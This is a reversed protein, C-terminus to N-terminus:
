KAAPQEAAQIGRVYAILDAVDKPELGKELGEPMLSLGTSAISEIRNRPVVDSVGEARKLTVANASEEAILGTLVRGDTTEVNYNIFNAAVERNPDLVHILMDEPTRGTVTALNPGVDIGQNEARHCTACVKKFVARGKERDGTLTLSPRYTAIIANRDARGASGLSKEARSRISANPNTLLQKQRAPDLDLPAVAKSEIADLLASVREPRAFLAEVAERRVSPSLNKWHGLIAPGVRRDALDALTQIAALQVATPERADLRDPIVALAREVPGLSLLRIADVRSSAAGDGKATAEAREFVPALAAGIPGNLANRLSGGSRQLGRGLGLVVARTLAPDADAQAFRALVTRLASPDNEAGVLTTLDNLFLRGEPKAFFGPHRSALRDLLAASKGPASCLVAARTWRDGSDKVAISALAAIARPDRGSLDGLTLATQFRVMADADDALALLPAIVPSDNGLHGEALKAAQERVNPDGDKLAGVLGEDKLGGLAQLTWLAHVRGLATPRDAALKTLPDLATKDNREILLRQATERWWSAPDALLPVLDVTKVGSLKPVRHRHGSTPVLNYLRGKDKGSTLDLHKKIPEPISLPHEITERYMDLILLTGDPTNTFNVPRFWNDPSTLFEVNRDARTALFEAGNKSLTKRHVLNGGVDGIFANGRYEPPFADGRYITVGTASTFFGTAVLETPPLRKRYEPDAARQRTRVIRWPEAASIRFVPSAPGEAAIDNIVPVGSLAPNRELYQSPLVIQRIHNSNSCTFRHGWDDFGHGFQGGGSIAEFASGDPKFRFDRGRISVPKADPKSLNKIAGGNSSSVGYIWGDPGWLLGNVLGQVNQFAFGTFMVKKVDAKGDGDTDKAYLIDPVVSIFVGGDYPVVGTPWSLGDVFLTSRDFKGDGDFDELRRVGGTPSNEPYPYGRMEVVYLRGDEDYCVSVPDTVLPETAIAELAFGDHIKFSHLAEAPSLPKIRPLEKALDDDAAGGLTSLALGATALLALFTWPLHRPPRRM